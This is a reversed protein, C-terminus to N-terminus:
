GSVNNYFAVYHSNDDNYTKQTKIESNGARVVVHGNHLFVQCVGEQVFVCLFCQQFVGSLFSANQVFLFCSATGVQDHHYFMLGEKQETRFSFSTYFNNRLTPINALDLDLYSQGSFHAERAVQM